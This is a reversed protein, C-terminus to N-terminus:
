RIAKRFQETFPGAMHDHGADTFHIHDASLLPAGQYITTWGKLPLFRIKESEAVQEYVRSLEDRSRHEPVDETVIGSLVVTSRPYLEKLKHVTRTADRRVRENDRVYVDNGSGQLYIVEPDGLPLTWYNDLVGGSYSGSPQKRTFGISPYATQSAEVTFGARSIGQRIWSNEPAVQSDGFVLADGTGLTRDVRRVLDHDVDFALADHQFATRRTDGDGSHSHPLGHPNPNASWVDFVRKSLAVGGYRDSYVMVAREYQKSYTDLASKAAAGLARGLGLASAEADMTKSIGDPQVQEYTRFTVSDNEYKRAIGGQFNQQIGFPTSHEDSTPYGWRGGEGGDEDWAQQITNSAVTWTGTAPSSYTRGGQFEQYRGGYPLNSFVESTPLGLSGGAAGLETWKKGIAGTTEVAHAGTSSSWAVLYQKDDAQNWFTQTTGSDGAPEEASVPIGLRGEASHEGDYFKRIADSTLVQIGHTSSWAIEAHDFSQICTGRHPCREPGRPYGYRGAHGGHQNYFESIQGERVHAAGATPSWYIRGHDFEQFCGGEAQDCEQPKLPHGLENQVSESSHYYDGIAGRLDPGQPSCATLSLATSLILAGTVRNLKGGM